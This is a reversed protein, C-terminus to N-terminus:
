DILFRGECRPAPLNWTGSETCYLTAGGILTYGPECTYNVFIRASFALSEHYSYNAHEVHPPSHCQMVKCHPVPSSWTGSATCYIIAEGLLVSGPDCTYKVSMGSTFLTAEMNSHTGNQIYPPAQCQVVECHPLPHSWAGSATCSVSAKGVLLYGPDCIYTVSMQSTFNKGAIGSHKGNAIDPPTPCQSVGCYVRGSWVGNIGDKSTCHISAIGVLPYGEKCTYTVAMGYTFDEIHMGTHRSHPVDPPPYCPIRQCFPVDGTWLVRGNFLVCQRSSRGIRRY